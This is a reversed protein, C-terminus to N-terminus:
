AVIIDIEYKAIFPDRTVIRMNEVTAQAVLLRDFPDRHILPLMRIADSHCVTVALEPFRQDALIEGFNDALHLKGIRQKIRIEWVVVASLFATNEPDAIASRADDSLTPDDNLWWLLSHTDLLLNM